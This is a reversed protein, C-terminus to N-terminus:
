LELARKSVDRIILTNKGSYSLIEPYMNIHINKKYPIFNECHFIHVNGDRPIYRRKTRIHVSTESSIRVEM